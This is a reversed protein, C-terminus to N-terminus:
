IKKRQKPIVRHGGGREVVAKFNREELKNSWPLFDGFLSLSHWAKPPIGISIPRINMCGTNRTRANGPTQWEWRPPPISIKQLWAKILYSNLEM